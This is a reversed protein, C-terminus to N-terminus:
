KKDEDEKLKEIKKKQLTKIEDRLNAAEEYEELKVARELSQKLKTIEEDISVREREKAHPFKGKHKVLGHIKKLLPQLQVKLEQYCKFCGLKGKQRFEEYTLGCNSCQDKHPPLEALGSDTLESLFNAMSFQKQFDDTKKKACTECLHIETIKSNIIETLHVTAQRKGCFDCLM